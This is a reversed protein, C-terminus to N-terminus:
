IQRTAPDVGIVRDWAALVGAADYRSVIEQARTGMARRLSDDGMLRELAATLAPEDGPEVLLGDVGDRVLERPGHPCDFSVVPLGAAMAEGIANPFGEYDSTLAALQFQGLYRTPKVVRGPLFLRDAIGLQTALQELAGREPGEGIICLSWQNAAPGCAAFARLLRDFGKLKVLRGIAVLKPGAGPVLQDDAPSEPAEVANPIKVMRSAAVFAGAWRRVGETQVVLCDARPYTFRRMLSWFRGIVAREPVTREAIVVRHRLGLSAMVTLANVTDMFAVVTDPGVEQLKRHLRRCRGLVARLSGGREASSEMDPLALRRIKSDLEFFSTLQPAITIITVEIGRAAWSNALFCLMREAGGASLSYIVMAVKM